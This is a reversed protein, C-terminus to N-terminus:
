SGIRGRDNDIEEVNGSLAMEGFCRATWSWGKIKKPARRYGRSSDCRSWNKPFDYMLDKGGLGGGVGGIVWKGFSLYGGIYFGCRRGALEGLTPIPYPDKSRYQNESVTVGNDGAM